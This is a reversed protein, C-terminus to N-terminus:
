GKGSRFFDCMYTEMPSPGWTAEVAKKLDQEGMPTTTNPFLNMEECAKVLNPFDRKLVVIRSLCNKDPCDERAAICYKFGNGRPVYCGEYVINV